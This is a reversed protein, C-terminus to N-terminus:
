FDGCNSPRLATDETESSYIFSLKGLSIHGNWYGSFSGVVSFFQILKKIGDTIHM